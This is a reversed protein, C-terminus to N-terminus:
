LKTGVIPFTISVLDMSLRTGCKSRKLQMNGIMRELLSLCRETTDNM